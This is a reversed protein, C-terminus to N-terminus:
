CQIPSAVHLAEASLLRHIQIFIVASLQFSLILGTCTLLSYTYLLTFHPLILQRKLNLVLFKHIINFVTDLESCVFKCM